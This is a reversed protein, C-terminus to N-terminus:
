IEQYLKINFLKYHSKIADNLANEITWETSYLYTSSTYGDAKLTVEWNCGVKSVYHTFLQALAEIKTESPTSLRYMGQAIFM